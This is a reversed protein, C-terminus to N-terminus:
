GGVGCGPDEFSDDHLNGVTVRDGDEVGVLNLVSDADGTDVGGLLAL